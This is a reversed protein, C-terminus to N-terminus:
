VYPVNAWFGLCNTPLLALNGLHAYIEYFEAKQVGQCMKAARHTYTDFWMCRLLKHHNQFGGSAAFFEENHMCIANLHFFTTTANRLFDRKSNLRETALNTVINVLAHAEPQSIPVPHAPISVPTTPQISAINPKDDITTPLTKVIEPPIYASILSFADVNSPHDMHRFFVIGTNTTHCEVKQKVIKKNDDTQACFNHSIEGWLITPGSKISSICGTLMQNVVSQSSAAFDSQNIVHVRVGDFEKKPTLHYSHSYCFSIGSLLLRCVEQIDLGPAKMLRKMIHINQHAIAHKLADCSFLRFNFSHNKVQHGNTQGTSTLILHERPILSNNSVLKVVDSNGHLNKLATTMDVRDSVLRMAHLVEKIEIDKMKTYLEDSPNLVIVRIPFAPIKRKLITHVVKRMGTIKCCTKNGKQTTSCGEAAVSGHIDDGLVANDHTEQVIDGMFDFSHYLTVLPTLNGEYSRNKSFIDGTKYLVLRFSGQSLCVVLSFLANQQITIKHMSSMHVGDRSENMAGVSTVLEDVAFLGGDYVDIIAANGCKDYVHVTSVLGTSPLHKKTGRTSTFDNCMLDPKIWIFPKMRQIISQNKDKPTSLSQLLASGGGGSVGLDESFSFVQLRAIKSLKTSKKRRRGLDPLMFVFSPFTSQLGEYLIYRKYKSVIDIHVHIDLETNGHNSHQEDQSKQSKLLGFIENAVNNEIIHVDPNLLKNTLIKYTEDPLICASIHM